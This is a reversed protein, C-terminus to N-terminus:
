RSRFWTELEEATKTNIIRDKSFWGKRAIAVGYKMDDLGPIDHADPCIATLLGEKKAKQGYRWDIDLRWPSANIEIATNHKAALEVLKNIDVKSGDRRLLLRATPHGVIRTFPNEIARTYRALMKDPPMDLSAHLSAIVFDFGELIEDPYDLSGDQLMDSEIGKFVRFEVGNERFHENLEDIEDWQKKVQDVTLGGAYAATKSHDTIGLYTYGKEICAEAMERISKKGDSWTSHAHLVGKIDGEQPLRADDLKHKEFFDFEGRDERLEPPVFNLDLEKYIEKESATKVPRDFDTNGKEDMQFLGYENLTLGKDRARQRMVINHEKSGTFYMLAAPFQEESVIRLDVQRGEATRVSSKTDGKGLVEVVDKHSTFTAFITAADDKEAAILIDIDGITEASRRLSGAVSIQKVGNLGSLSSYMRDSIDMAVDLRCRESFQEMWEISKLIKAASKQGMGSLGAVSGDSCKEKLESIETIGLEKHIKYIKKPGLGSIGLWKVLGEPVKEKLMTLVPIEGKEQLQYIDEAISKGIGKIDTLKKADVIEQIDEQLGEITRAARDFAIAKFDNEGALRMYTATTELQQAVFHNELKM